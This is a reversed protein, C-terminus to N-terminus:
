AEPTAAANSTSIRTYATMWVACLERWWGDAGILGIGCLVECGAGRVVVGVGTVDVVVVVVVVVSVVEVEDVGVSLAAWITGGGSGDDLVDDDDDDVVVEGGVVIGFGYTVM